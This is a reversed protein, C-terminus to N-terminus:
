KLLNRKLRNMFKALEEGRYDELLTDICSDISEMLNSSDTSISTLVGGFEISKFDLLIYTREGRSFPIRQYRLYHFEPTSLQLYKLHDSYKFGSSRPNIIETHYGRADVQQNKTMNCDICSLVMNDLIFTLAPNKKKDAIHEIQWSYGYKGVVRKCYACRKGTFEVLTEVLRKKLEVLAKVECDSFVIEKNKKNNKPGWSFVHQSQPKSFCTWIHSPYFEAAAVLQTLRQLIAKEDATRTLNAIM